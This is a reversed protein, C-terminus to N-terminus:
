GNDAEVIKLGHHPAANMLMEAFAENDNWDSPVSCTRLSRALGALKERVPDVPEPLLLSQAVEEPTQVGCLIRQGADHQHQLLRAIATVPRNEYIEYVNWAEMKARESPEINSLDTM